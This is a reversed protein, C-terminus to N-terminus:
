LRCLPPRQARTQLTNVGVSVINVGFVDFNRLAWFQVEPSAGRPGCQVALADVPGLTATPWRRVPGPGSSVSGPVGPARVGRLNLICVECSLRSVVFIM